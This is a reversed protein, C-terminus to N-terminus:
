MQQPFQLVVITVKGEVLGGTGSTIENISLMGKATFTSGFRADTQMFIGNSSTGGAQVALRNATLYTVSSASPDDSTVIANAVPNFLSDLVIGVVLGQSPFDTDHLVALIEDLTSKALRMGTIDVQQQGATVPKCVVSPTAQAVDELVELCAWQVLKEGIVGGWTPTAGSMNRSLEHTDAPSLTYETGTSTTIPQPEGFLVTLQDALTSPVSVETDFDTVTATVNVTDAGLCSTQVAAEDTCGLAVVTTADGPHYFARGAIAPGPQGSPEANEALGQPTFVLSTAPECSPQSADNPDPPLDAAAYVAVQVELTQSAIRTAPAPLDITDISCLDMRGQVIPECVSVYPETPDSPSLIRVSLVAPCPMAVDSCDRALQQTTVNAYCLQSSDTTLTYKLTLPPPDGCAALALLM